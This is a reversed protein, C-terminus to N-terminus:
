PESWRRLLNHYVGTLSSWPPATPWRRTSSSSPWTSTSCCRGSAPTACWARCGSSRPWGPARAHGPHRPPPQLGPLRHSRGGAAQGLPQRLHGGGGARGRRLQRSRVPVADGLRRHAPARRQRPHSPHRQRRALRLADGRDYRNFLPPFVRQPLVASIFLPSRELAELVLAGLQGPPRAARRAGPPEAQGPRVPPRRDGPRGGLGGGELAARCRAVEEAGLVEPVHVMM